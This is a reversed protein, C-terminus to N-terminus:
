RARVRQLVRPKYGFSVCHRISRQEHVRGRLAEDAAILSAETTSSLVQLPVRLPQRLLASPAPVSRTAVPRRDDIGAPGYNMAAHLMSLFSLPLREIVAKGTFKSDRTGKSRAASGTGLGRTGCCGQWVFPRGNGVVSYIRAPDVNEEDRPGLDSNSRRSVRGADAPQRQQIWTPEPSDSGLRSLPYDRTRHRSGM